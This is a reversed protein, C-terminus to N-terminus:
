RRGLAFGQTQWRSFFVSKKDSNSLAIDLYYGSASM